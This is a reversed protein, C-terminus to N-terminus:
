PKFKAADDHTGFILEQHGSAWSHLYLVGAQFDKKVTAERIFCLTHGPKACDILVNRGEKIAKADRRAQQKNVVAAYEPNTQMDHDHAVVAAYAAARLEALTPAPKKPM